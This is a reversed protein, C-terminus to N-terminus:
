PKDMWTPQAEAHYPHSCPRYCFGSNKPNQAGCAPCSTPQDKAPPSPLEACLAEYATFYKGWGLVLHREREQAALLATKVERAERQFKIASHKWSDEKRDWEDRESKLEDREAEATAKIRDVEKMVEIDGGMDPYGRLSSRISELMERAGKHEATALRATLTTIHDLMQAIVRRVDTPWHDERVAERLLMLDSETLAPEASLEAMAPKVAKFSRLRSSSPHEPCFWGTPELGLPSSKDKRTFPTHESKLKGCECLENAM